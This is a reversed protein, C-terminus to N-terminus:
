CAEDFALLGAGVVGATNGLQAAEIPTDQAAPLARESFAARAPGLLREGLVILGGGVAIMEPALLAAASALAIGLDRAMAEITKSALHEGQLAADVIERVSREAGGRARYRFALATASVSRELAGPRHRPGGESGPDFIMHGIEGAAGYRGLIPRGALTIGGGLGTGVTVALMIGGVRRGAGVRAEALAALTADNACAVPKGSRERLECAVEMGGIGPWQPPEALVKGERGHVTGPVGVGIGAASELWPEAAKALASCLGEPGGRSDVPVSSFERVAGFEDVLGCKVETGGVDIGIASRM